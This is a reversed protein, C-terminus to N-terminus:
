KEGVWNYKIIISKDIGALSHENIINQVFQYCEFDEPKKAVITVTVKPMVKSITDGKRLAVTCEDIGSCKLKYAIAETVINDM